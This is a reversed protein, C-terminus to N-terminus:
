KKRNIVSKDYYFYIILGVVLHALHTIVKYVEINGEIRGIIVLIGTSFLGLAGGLIVVASWIKIMLRQYGLARWTLVALVSISVLIHLLPFLIKGGLLNIFQVGIVVCLSTIVLIPYWENQFVKDNM